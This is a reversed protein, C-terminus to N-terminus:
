RTGSLGTNGRKMTPARMRALMQGQWGPGPWGERPRGLAARPSAQVFLAEPEESM